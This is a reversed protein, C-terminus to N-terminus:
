KDETPDDLIGAVSLLLVIKADLQVTGTLCDRTETMAEPLPTIQERDISVVEDVSEVILGAMEQGSLAIVICTHGDCVTDQQSIRRRVDLVAVVSGRLNIIGRVHPSTGPMPTIPQIGVIQIIDDIPLAYAQGAISFTLYQQEDQAGEAQKERDQVDTM